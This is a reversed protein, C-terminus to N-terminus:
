PKNLANACFSTSLRTNRCAPSASNSGSTWCSIDPGSSHFKYAPSDIPLVNIMLVNKDSLTESSKISDYIEISLLLFNDIKKRSARCSSKNFKESIWTWLFNQAVSTSFSFFNYFAGRASLKLTIRMFRDLTPLLSIKIVECSSKRGSIKSNTWRSKLGDFDQLDTSHIEPEKNQQNQCCLIEHRIWFIRKIPKYWYFVQVSGSTM